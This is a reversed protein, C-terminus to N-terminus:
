VAIAAKEAPSLLRQELSSKGQDLALQIKVVANDFDPSHVLDSDKGLYPRVAPFETLLKDFYFRVKSMKVENADVDAM